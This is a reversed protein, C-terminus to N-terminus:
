ILLIWFNTTAIQTPKNKRNGFNEDNLNLFFLCKLKKNTLM